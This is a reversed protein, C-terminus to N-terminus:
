GVPCVSLVAVVDEDAPSTITGGGSFRDITAVFTKSGTSGAVYRARHYWGYASGSVPLPERVLLKQQGGINDERIRVNVEGAATTQARCSWKVWYAGPVLVGTVTDVVTEATFGPPSTDRVAEIPRLGVRVWGAPQRLELWGMDLRAVVLGEYPDALADREAQDAVLLVGGPAATWVREDVVVPDGGGQAPVEIRALSMAGQPVAPAAPSPDPTGAEYEVDADRMGSTDEDHDYVRAWVRDVRPDTVDAAQLPGRTLQAPFPVWYGAQESTWAPDLYCVGPAILIDSGDLTVQLQTGGPRVGQRGGAARGDYGLGLALGQRFEAASYAPAGTDANIVLPDVM